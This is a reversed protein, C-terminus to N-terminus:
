KIACLGNNMKRADLKTYFEGGGFFIMIGQMSLIKKKRGEKVYERYKRKWGRMRMEKGM